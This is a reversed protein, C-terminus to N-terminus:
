DGFAEKRALRFGLVQPLNLVWDLLLLMSGARVAPTLPRALAAEFSVMDLLLYLLIKIRAIYVYNQELQRVMCLINWATNEIPVVLTGVIGM